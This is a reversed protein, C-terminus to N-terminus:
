FLVVLFRGFRLRGLMVAWFSWKNYQIAKQLCQLGETKRGEQLLKFGTKRYKKSLVRMAQRRPIWDAGGYEFYFREPVKLNDLHVRGKGGRRSLSEAQSRRIVFTQPVFLFPTRTSLRLFFDQDEALELTEDFFFGDLLERRILSAQCYVFFRCFLSRVIWGTCAYKDNMREQRSGDPHEMTVSAYAVGYEPVKELSSVMTQLYDPVYLDDSDLFTIYRGGAKRLGLNRASSVGGNEKWFYRLREDKISSVAQATGDTSGDDIVLIEFDRFTQRCVSGIAEQLLAKRNYTPIIVSVRPM